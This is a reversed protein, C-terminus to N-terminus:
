GPAPRSAMLYVWIPGCNATVTPNTRPHRNSRRSVPIPAMPSTEPQTKPVRSPIVTKRASARRIPDLGFSRSPFFHASHEQIRGRRSPGKRAKRRGAPDTKRPRAAPHDQAIRARTSRSRAAFAEQFRNPKEKRYTSRMWPITKRPRATRTKRAELGRKRKEDTEARHRHRTRDSGTAGERIRRNWPFGILASVAPCPGTSGIEPTQPCM